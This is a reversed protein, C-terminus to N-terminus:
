YKRFPNNILVSPCLDDQYSFKKTGLDVYILLASYHATWFNVEAM